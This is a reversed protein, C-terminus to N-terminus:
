RNCFYPQQSCATEQLLKVRQTYCVFCTALLMVYYDATNPMYIYTSM